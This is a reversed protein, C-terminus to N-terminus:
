NHSFWAPNSAKPSGNARRSKASKASRQVVESAERWDRRLKEALRVVRQRLDTGGTPGSPPSPEPGIPEIGLQELGEYVKAMATDPDRFFSSGRIRVFRWGLRELILQRDMDEKLNDPTHFRDGDCEIAIKQDGNAIVVIDIRFAGVPWNPHTRYGKAHLRRLVQREFESDAKPTAQALARISASPDEAHQILQLRLDGPKLDTLANLSHVVWLQDRARSAAVNFRQKWADTNKDKKLPEGTPSSDVLSVFVIDREDGQFQAPKGCVIRRKAYNAEGLHRLLLSDILLAQEEGVMSIVGMTKDAYESQESAAVLLSAVEEAEVQNVEKDRAGEHVRHAIMFPRTRVASSERLPKIRGHYCLQNSFQIIGPVSRFHEVLQITTGFSFSALNYISTRGDYLLKNPIGELFQNILALVKQLDQGVASPSVQEDDGVVVVERALAFALLGTVDCQSAEDIIVVDFCTSAFDFCDAVRSLPMIWVPVATRCSRLKDRAAAKLVPALVGSKFGPRKVTKLWGHLAQQQALGTRRIQAAWTRCDVFGRTAHRLRENLSALECQLAHVDTAARRDLEEQFQRYRWAREPDGPPAAMDHPPTRQQVAKAWNPAASALDAILRSRRQFHCRRRHLEELRGWAKAYADSDLARAADRLRGAIQGPDDEPRFAALMGTLADHTRTLESLEARRLLREATPLLHERIATELRQSEPRPGPVPLVHGQVHEWRVGLHRLRELCPTWTSKHWDLGANFHPIYQRCLQGPRNGLAEGAPVGLHGLQRDWRYVLRERAEIVSLSAYIAVFDNLSRPTRGDVTATAILRKWHPKFLLTFVGVNGGSRLHAIIEECAYRSQRSSPDSIITVDNQTLLNECHAAQGHTEEILAILEEWCQRQPGARCGAEVCELFWPERNALDTLVAQLQRHIERLKHPPSTEDFRWIGEDVQLDSSRLARIREATAAFDAPSPLADLQPLRGGLDREDQSPLLETLRYLESIDGLSLPLGDGPRVPGPIWDDKGTGERVRRAADSPPVGVGAVVISDYEDKVARDLSHRVETIKAKLATREDHLKEAKQDLTEADSTSLRSVIGTVAEELEKRNSLDSDLVSVCLPRLEEAINERVVRLAKATHSTILINKGQALLHGVLNAITHTKGTGPPGQVLVSGTTALRRIVREQEPNAPKTLLLDVDTDTRLARTLHDPALGDAGTRRVEAPDIGVVRSLVPSVDEDSDSELLRKLLGDIATAYGASRPALYLVPNRYVVPSDPQGAAEDRPVLRGNAFLSQVVRSLFGDTDERGLPHYEGKALDSRYLGLHSGDVSPVAALLATYLECPDDTEVVRFEPVEPDFQLEVKQLLLPHDIIGQTDQTKLFGDGLILQFREAERDLRGRLEFFTQFAGMAARVPREAAVWATRKECWTHWAAVRAPNEVLRETDTEGDVTRNRAEIREPDRDIDKWGPHIWDRLISPPPPCETEKPRRIRLIFSDAAGPADDTGSERKPPTSIEISPDQPLRTLYQSWEYSDIRRVPPTRVKQLEALFRFVQRIKEKAAGM